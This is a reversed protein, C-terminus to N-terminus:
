FQKMFSIKSIFSRNNTPNDQFNNENFVLYLFSLPSFEWSGRVNIRGRKDFTNYQYFSSLQIRPNPAIRLGVTYLDTSFNENKIGFDKFNSHEYNTTLAINPIPSFRGGLTLTNLKGNFYGGFEYRSQVSIKKSADSEYRITHRLVQYNGIPITKGLIDFAFNYTQWTPKIAYEFEANSNFILYIPFFTINVEQMKFDNANQYFDIFGGPDMRRFIKGLKGKPRWIYYGGPNHQITNNAFVFGMGPVYKEDVFKSVWGIYANQPFYGAYIHGALGMKESSNDRSGSLLYSITWSDNPRALGDITLTTNNKELFGKEANAEDLKHTLMVGVNNQKGYNQLYRFVGFNAGGQTQNGQQHVYLGAITRKQTRNTYRVGADIPVSEANFQSNALGITRSFFPNIGDTGAGSYIGSNELFFQRREPFFVNFRTTNNVARDVDAQAFDTNFTVDLVSHPNVAWKIEGGLKPSNSTTSKNNADKSRDNQYLLYPNVRLNVSPKPLKLGTLQAAYTMRYPSFSQPIAPFVSQEYDRRALRAFTIGWSAINESKEYRLSKFPIAFEAFYGTETITTRVKWLADWDQDKFDDNFVQLDRQSGHPTTQFSVCFRKLNQPDLQLFFIDNEGYIFDRRLDQVRVGKKGLSDACFVGFYLNKDDFIVRVETKYKVKEGQRPEMMFFDSTIPANKWSNEDLKGDVSINEKTEIAKITQAIKLPEFNGTKLTDQANVKTLVFLFITIFYFFPMKFKM